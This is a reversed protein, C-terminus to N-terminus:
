RMDDLSILESKDAMIWADTSEESHYVVSGNDWCMVEEEPPSPPEKVAVEVSVSM